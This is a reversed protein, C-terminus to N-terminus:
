YYTSTEITIKVREVSIYRETEVGLINVEIENRSEFKNVDRFSVPFELGSWDLEEEYKKSKNVREPNNGVEEWKMAAIIAWKFCEM